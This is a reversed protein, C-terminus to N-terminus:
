VKVIDGLRTNGKKMLRALVKMFLQATIFADGAATHRDHLPISYRRCLNDLGFEGPKPLHYGVPQELRKTLLATDIHKNLLQLGYHNELAQNLIAIDFAVHHGVLIANGAYLFFQQLAARESLGEALTTQRIGHVALENETGAKEQNVLVEMSNGLNIQFNEVRVAGIQIIRDKRYDLGSTETDFAVFRVRELPISKDWKIKFNDTYEEWWDPPNVASKKKFLNKLFM